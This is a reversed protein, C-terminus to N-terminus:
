SLDSSGLIARVRKGERGFDVAGTGDRVALSVGARIRARIEGGHGALRLLEVAGAGRSDERRQRVGM